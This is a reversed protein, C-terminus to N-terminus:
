GHAAIHGALCTDDVSFIIMLDSLAKLLKMNPWCLIAAKMTLTIIVIPLLINLHGPAGVPYFRLRSHKDPYVIRMDMFPQLELVSDKEPITNVYDECALKSLSIMYSKVLNTNQGQQIPTTKYLPVVDYGLGKKYAIFAHQHQLPYDVIISDIKDNDEMWFRVDRWDMPQLAYRPRLSGEFGPLNL